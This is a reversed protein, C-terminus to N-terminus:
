IHKLNPHFYLIRKSTYIHTELQIAKRKAEAIVRPPFQAMAAVHVGFSENCPGDEVTYLMVVQGDIVEGKVHKNVVGVNKKSVDSTDSTDKKHINQTALATLEHFHSAFLCFSGLHTSIHESIGWALGFGDFTSTGRGLEDIIILSDRTATNLIISAEL